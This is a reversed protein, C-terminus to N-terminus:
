KAQPWSMMEVHMVGKLERLQDAIKKMKKYEVLGTLAPHMGSLYFMAKEVLESADELSQSVVAKSETDTPRNVSDM